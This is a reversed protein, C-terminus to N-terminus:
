NRTQEVSGPPLPQHPPAFFPFTNRLPVENHDVHDHLAVRNNILTLLTDMVDDGPRRGNPFGAATNAGGEPGTNPLSLNLRLMDGHRAAQQLFIQTSTADTGLARLTARLDAVFLGDADDTTTAHNYEDRRPYPTFIDNVAPIGMRDLTVFPGAYQVAGNDTIVARRQQQTFAAVGIVDGAPGRLRAAPISLVIMMVNYGAFSDRARELLTSDPQGALRSALYRLKAPEDLFFPDDHLGASFAVGSAEDVTVVPAPASDATSSAPTTPATFTYAAQNRSLKVTATQPQGTGTPKTFRIDISLDGAADGTNEIQFQFNVSPNFLGASANEAPVIPGAVDFAMIVKSNDNPDLFLFLDDIDLGNGIVFWPADRHDAAPAPPAPLCVLACVTTLVLARAIFRGHRRQALQV